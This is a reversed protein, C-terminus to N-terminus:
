LRRNSNSKSLDVKDTVKTRSTVIYSIDKRNASDITINTDERILNQNLPGMKQRRNFGINQRRVTKNWVAIDPKDTIDLIGSSLDSVSM